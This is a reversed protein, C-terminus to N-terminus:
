DRHVSHRSLETDAMTHLMEHFGAYQESNERESVNKMPSDIILVTPLVAGTRAALRHVAVAFCCKFFSKKGGSSLNAFSTFVMEGTNRGYVHPLFNPSAVEIWDDELIGPLRSRLMCDLFLKELLEINSRDREAEERATRLESRIEAERGTLQAAQEARLRAEDCHAKVVNEIQTVEVKGTEPRTVLDLLM